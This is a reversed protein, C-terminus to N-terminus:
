LDEIRWVEYAPTEYPHAQKLVKVVTRILEDTCVMEVKYESVRELEGVDGIFPDAGELAMFQGEGLTQWACRGYNGIRGAGAAFLAEKLSELHSPPVFVALKYM